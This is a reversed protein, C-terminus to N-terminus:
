QCCTFIGDVDVVLPDRHALWHLGNVVQGLHRAGQLTAAIQKNAARSRCAQDRNKFRCLEFLPRWDNYLDAQHFCVQRHVAETHAWPVSAIAQSPLDAAEDSRKFHVVARPINLPPGRLPDALAGNMVNRQRRFLVEYAAGRIPEHEDADILEFCIGDDPHFFLVKFALDERADELVRWIAEKQRRHVLWLERHEVPVSLLRLM